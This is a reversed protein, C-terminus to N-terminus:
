IVDQKMKEMKARQELEIEEEIDTDHVYTHAAREVLDSQNALIHNIGPPEEILSKSNQYSSQFYLVGIGFMIITAIILGTLIEFKM